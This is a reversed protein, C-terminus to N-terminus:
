YKVLFANSQRQSRPLTQCDDSNAAARCLLLNVRLLGILDEAQLPPQMRPQDSSGVPVRLVVSDGNAIIGMPAGGVCAWAFDQMYTRLSDPGTRGVSFIPGTSKNSCKAFYVPGGSTNRYTANVYARYEGPLHILRYVVSDTQIPSADRVPLGGEVVLPPPSNETLNVTTDNCSVSLVAVMAVFSITRVFSDSNM